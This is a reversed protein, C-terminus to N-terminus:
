AALAAVKEKARTLSDADIAMADAAIVEINDIGIFNLFQRMYPTAYDVPSDIPVGGSAIALIARKNKLLGEPGNETYHFSVGARCVQDIWAKLAAPVGFNYIPVAIVLIDSDIIEKVLSDSLLLQQKQTDTRDAVATTNADIWEADLQPVPDAALDRRIVQTVALKEIIEQSLTRTASNLTRMSADLHFVTKM